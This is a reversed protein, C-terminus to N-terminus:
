RRPTEKTKTVNANTGREVADLAAGVLHPLSATLFTALQERDLRGHQLWQVTASEALGGYARLVARLEPTASEVPGLGLVAIMRDSVEERAEEFIAEIEPDGVGEARMSALWTERNREVTALWADVSEALRQEPTTDRVYEPIPPPPVRVMERVVEVYLDRKTGFYHNILGRAVGAEAAVEATSVGDYGRTSFLSKAAQLIQRRREDRDLRAGRASTQTTAM